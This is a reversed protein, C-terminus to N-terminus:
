DQPAGPDFNEDLSFDGDRMAAITAQAQTLYRQPVRICAGGVAIALLSHAQVLNTDGAEAPIGAAALCGCLMHAETPTLDRAAIVLDGDTDDFSPPM